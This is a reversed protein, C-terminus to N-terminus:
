KNFILAVVLGPKNSSFVMEGRHLKVVAEVLSLGLGTGETHRSKDLRFFRERVKKHYEEPIGGGSDAIIIKILHNEEEVSVLIKGKQPTYKIANDLLNSIAQAFLQKDGNFLIAQPIKERIKINKQDASIKYLDAIDTILESLDFQLFDPVSLGSEAKSIKLIADFMEGLKDLELIAESIMQKTKAPTKKDAVIGELRIRHRSLPTRMDHALNEATEKTSKILASIWELMDNFNASLKDFQDNSGVLLARFALNGSKVNEFARNLLYLKKRTIWLIFITCFVATIVSYLLDEWITKVFTKKVTEVHRLSYGVLLKAGDPYTKVMALYEQEEDGAFAIFKVWGNKPASQPFKLLNGEAIVGDKNQFVVAIIKEDDSDIVISILNLGYEVGKKEITTNIEDFEQEIVSKVNKYAEASISKYIYSRLILTASLFILLCIAILQFSFSHHIKKLNKM